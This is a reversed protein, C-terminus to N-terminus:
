EALWMQGNAPTGSDNPCNVGDTCTQLIFGGAAEIVGGEVKLKSTGPDTTGIGVNGANTVVLGTGTSGSINAVFNTNLSNGGIIELRTNNGRADLVVDANGANDRILILGGTSSTHLDVSGIPTYGANHSLRFESGSVGHIHLLKEPGTTGIGVNGNDVILGTSIATGGTNLILGGVKSQGVNSTNLPASVNDGPPDATPETWGFVNFSIALCIVMVSFILSITRSSIKNKM